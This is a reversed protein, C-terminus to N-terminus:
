VDYKQLFLKLEKDFTTGLPSPKGDKLWQKVLAIHKCPKMRTPCSCFWKDNGKTVHYIDRPDKKNTWKTVIYSNSVKTDVVMYEPDKDFPSAKELIYKYFKM